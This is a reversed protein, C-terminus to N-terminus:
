RMALTMADHLWAFAQENNSVALRLGEQAVQLRTHSVQLRKVADHLLGAIEDARRRDSMSGCPRSASGSWGYTSCPVSPAGSVTSTTSRSRSSTARASHGVARARPPM